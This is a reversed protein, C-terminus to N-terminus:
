GAALQPASKRSAYMAEDARALAAEADESRAIPHVGISASLRHAVGEHIAPTAAIAAKLAAAKACAAAFDSQALIVAFEDGGLRGVTDSERVNDLLLRGVHKLAADGAPHGFGDNIAKFADLDIYLVAAEGGYRQVYATTRQLAEVFARRNLVPILSDHDALNELEAIRSKLAAIEQDLTDLAAAVRPTMEKVGLGFRAARAAAESSTRNRARVPGM